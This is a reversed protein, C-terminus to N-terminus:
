AATDRMFILKWMRRGGQFVPCLASYAVAFFAADFVLRAAPPFHSARGAVGVILAAVASVVLPPYIVWAFDRLRVPSQRCADFIFLAFCLSFTMSFSAAVGAGGWRLGVVFGALIIPSSIVAWLLMRHAKGLSIFIWEPAGCITGVLAAPALLRFIAIAGSWKPGLVTLVLFRADVFAFVIIPVGIFAVGEIARLFYRRYQEPQRQLRSLAPLVVGGIPVNIQQIPFILLAYAKSYVGLPGAGLFRGILVNDATRTLYNLLNYGTLHGGLGLMSRVGTKRSPLGPRWGSAIWAVLAMAAGGVIGNVVLAWYHWGAMALGIAVAASVVQPLTQVLAMARFRMQRTLLAYHQSTLGSFVFPTALVLTVMTLRPEHYFWALVPALSAVVVSILLSFGINIWFLTSIQKHTIEPRQITAGALGMDGLLWLLGTFATVMAVIGFDAPMLLRALIATSALQIVFKAVQAALMVAGGRVSRGKLDADLHATAFFSDETPQNAVANLPQTLADSLEPLWYSPSFV